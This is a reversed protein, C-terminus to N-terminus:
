GALPDDFQQGGSAVTGTWNQGDHWRHEFRQAPDPYWGPQAVPAPASASTPASTQAPTVFAEAPAVFGSAAMTPAGSSAWGPADAMAPAPHSGAPGGGLSPEPLSRYRTIAVIDNAVALWNAFFSIVGWWGQWMTKGLYSTALSTGHTRCLPQELKVFRQMVLLGVHRRIPEVRTPGLGCLVCPTATTEAM